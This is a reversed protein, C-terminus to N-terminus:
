CNSNSHHRYYPSKAFFVLVLGGQLFVWLCVFLLLFGWFLVFVLCIFGGVFCGGGLWGLGVGCFELCCRDKDIRGIRDTVNQGQRQRNDILFLWTGSYLPWVMQENHQNQELM